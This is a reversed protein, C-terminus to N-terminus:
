CQELLEIQGVSIPPSSTARTQATRWLQRLENPLTAEIDQREEPVLRAVDTLVALTVAEAVSADLAPHAGGIADFLDDARKIRELEMGRRQPREALQKVDDPFHAFVHEREDLPIQECFTSLVTRLISTPQQPAGARVATDILQQLATSPPLPQARGTSPRTDGPLLGVHLFSEVGKVGAVHEIADILREADHQSAVEGHLMAVHDNVMVHIHPLDLEKEVPGISSRIRDALVFDSVNVDPHRRHLQYDLGQLRGPIRHLRRQVRRRGARTMRRARTTRSLGLVGLAALVVGAGVQGNRKRM